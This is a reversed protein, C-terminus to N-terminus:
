KNNIRQLHKYYVSLNHMGRRRNRNSGRFIITEIGITKCIKCDCQKWPKDELTRKYHLRLNHLARTVSEETSTPKWQLPKTYEIVKDLTSTIDTKGQDYLRIKQLAEREMRLLDEQRYLGTKAHNKLKTNEIAQPIRIATYFKLSDGGNPMFYNNTSDKFAKILPSTSDFSAIKKYKTFEHLNNAKAFGLLHLKVSPWRKIADEISSVALHIEEVSLPVLGGIALYRYGIKILSLAASVLSDPSWGQIVGVPTFDKGLRKSEEFFESALQLTIDYREKSDESGSNLGKTNSDFEFIIHDISCGHTFRGEEYFEVTDTAAYPPKSLKSYSFAGCDGFVLKNKHEPKNFRLFEPAGIRRFRMAQSESYTSAVIARSVLMGDYPAYGLIEHPYQDDWYPERGESHNDNIFDFGPDVYDLSDAFIFKM